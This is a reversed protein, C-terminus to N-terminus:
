FLLLKQRAKKLFRTIIGISKSTSERAVRSTMSAFALMWSRELRIATLFDHIAAKAAMVSDTLPAFSLFIPILVISGSNPEDVITMALPVRIRANPPHSPSSTCGNRFHSLGTRSQKAESAIVRSTRPDFNM